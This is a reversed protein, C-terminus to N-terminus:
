TNTQGPLHISGGWHFLLLSASLVFMVTRYSYNGFHGFDSLPELSRSEVPFRGPMERQWAQFFNLRTAWTRWVALRAEERDVYGSRLDFFRICSEHFFVLKMEMEIKSWLLLFVFFLIVASQFLSLTKSLAVGCQDLLSAACSIRYLRSLLVSLKINNVSFCNHEAWEVLGWVVSIVNVNCQM